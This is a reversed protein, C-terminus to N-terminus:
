LSDPCYLLFTWYYVHFIKCWSLISYHSVHKLCPPPHIEILSGGGVSQHLKINHKTKFPSFFHLPASICKHRTDIQRARHTTYICAADCKLAATDIFHHSRWWHVPNHLQLTNSYKETAGLFVLKITLYLARHFRKNKNQIPRTKITM